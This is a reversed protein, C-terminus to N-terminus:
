GTVGIALDMVVSSLSPHRSTSMCCRCCLAMTGVHVDGRIRSPTVRSLRSLRVSPIPVSFLPVPLLLFCHRRAHQPCPHALYPGPLITADLLTDIDADLQGKALRAHLLLGEVDHAVVLADLTVLAVLGPYALGVVALAHRRLGYRLRHRNNLTKLQRFLQFPAM